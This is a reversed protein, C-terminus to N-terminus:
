NRLYTEVHFEIGLNKWLKLQRKNKCALFQPVIRLTESSYLETVWLGTFFAHYIIKLALASM